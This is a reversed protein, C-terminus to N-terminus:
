EERRRNIRRSMRAITNRRRNRNITNAVARGGGGDSVRPKRYKGGYGSNGVPRVGLDSGYNDPVRVRPGALMGALAAMLLMRGPTGGRREM